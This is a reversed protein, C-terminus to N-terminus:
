RCSRPLNPTQVTMSQSSIRTLSHCFRLGQVGRMHYTSVTFVLWRALDFSGLMYLLESTRILETTIDPQCNKLPLTPLCSYPISWCASTSILSVVKRM